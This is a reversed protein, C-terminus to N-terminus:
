SVRAAPCGAAAHVPPDAISLTFRVYRSMSILILFTARVEDDTLIKMVRQAVTPAPIGTFPDRSAYGRKLMWRWAARLSVFRTRATAPSRTARVSATFDEVDATTIDDPDDSRGAAALFASFQCMSERYSQVTKPSRGAAAYSAALHQAIDPLFPKLTAHASTM